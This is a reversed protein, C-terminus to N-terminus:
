GPVLEGIPATVDAPCEEALWHGADAVTVLRIEGADVRRWWLDPVSIREHEGLVITTPVRLPERRPGLARPLEHAVWSRYLHRTMRPAAGQGLRALYSGMAEQGPPSRWADRGAHDLVAARVRDPRSALRAGRLAMAFVYDWGGLHAVLPRLQLWPAMIALAAYGDFREPHALVARFGIWGGWDHAALVARAVGLADLVAVLDDALDGVTARAVAGSRLTSWGFGRLDLAVVRCAPDGAVLAAAVERWAFWHQPWGHVLLVVPGDVPGALAVHQVGWPRAVFRHEVDLGLHDHLCRDLRALPDLGELPGRAM